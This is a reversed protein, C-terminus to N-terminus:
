WLEVKSFTKHNAKRLEKQMFDGFNVKQMYNQM